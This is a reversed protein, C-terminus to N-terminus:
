GAVSARMELNVSVVFSNDFSPPFPVTSVPLHIGDEVAKMGNKSGFLAHDVCSINGALVVWSILWGLSCVWM